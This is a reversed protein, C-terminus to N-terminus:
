KDLRRAVLLAWDDDHRREVIELSENSLAEEVGAQYEVLIGSAAVVGSPALVDAISPALDVIAQATINAVVIDFSAPKVQEHPLTGGLVRVKQAVGNSDVNARAVPLVESAIDLAV